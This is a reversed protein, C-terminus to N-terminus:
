IFVIKYVECLKAALGTKPQVKSSANSHLSPETHHKHVHLSQRFLFLILIPLTDWGM